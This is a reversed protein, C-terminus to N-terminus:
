NVGTVYGYNTEGVNSLNVTIAALAAASIVFKFKWRKMESM